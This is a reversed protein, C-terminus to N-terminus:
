SAPRHERRMLAAGPVGLAQGRQELLAVIDDAPRPPSFLFGQAQDCGLDVLATLQDETEVGEGVVTLDLARGLSVVGAVIASDEADSGLGDVFSRDVKVSDIPFRKLYGLSSYGTGFDDMSLRVGLDKLECLTKLVPGTDDLLVSETIELCLNTAPLCSRGLTSEITETIGPHAIQKASLNVAVVLNPDIRDDKRWEGYQRCVESLVWAGLPVVLGTEEALPVFDHPAVLGRQPHQWRILAEIGVYRAESLSVIPQYFVRFENRELARHLASETELRERARVRMREDFLEWRAKGREKALYMAADADRLLDEPLERSGSALAIGVSASLFREEGDPLFPAKLAELLREAVDIVHQKADAGGLDECLVTFEDGGFRALTDGPRLVARLRHGVAVLLEDGYDHGLSDNYNKFEDLDLFLVATANRKRRARALALTLFELFLARNPLGTLPDHHAQFELQEESAKREIAIAALYVLNDVVVRDGPTPECPEPWYLAFTGLVRRDSSALIPTSWCSRLGNEKMLARYSEFLVDDFTDRVIVVERRSAAAGCAGAGEVIPIGADLAAVFPGPLNPGAIPHLALGSADVLMVACVADTVSDEVLECLATLTEVLTDGRAVMELVLAQAAVLSEARTRETVDRTTVVIGQVAPDELLNAAISEVNRWAGDRHRIRFPAPDIRGTELQEAMLRVLEDRDDPHVSGLPNTWTEDNDEFGFLRNAAPSTYVLSGNADVVTIVDSLNQVLARLREESHRVLGEARTRETVDHATVVVGQVAPDDALNNAIAEVTRYSDDSARLRFQEPGTLGPSLLAESFVQAVRDLDDPHVRELGGSGLGFGDPLGLVRSGAPSSYRVTGDLNIVSVMDSGNQVMARFREESERLASEAERAETMDRSNIVFGGVDPDNRLDTATIAMWRWVGDERRMRMEFLRSAGRAVGSLALSAIGLDDPHLLEVLENTSANSIDVGTFRSVSPSAYTVAGAEDLVVLFDSSHHVLAKFRARSSRLGDEAQKRATVDIIVGMASVVQGNADLVPALSLVSDIVRGGVAQLTLEFDKIREGAYVRRILDEVTSAADAPVFPLRRGLVEDASWGFMEECANNWLQVSLDAEVSYIALPSAQVLALLASDSRARADEASRRETVDQSNSVIGHVTPDDLLNTMRSEVWRWTQDKHRIRYNIRVTRGAEARVEAEAERLSPLDDPHAEISRDPAGLIEDVEYGLVRRIAPSVYVINNAADRVSVVDLAENVLSRFWSESALLRAEVEKLHTIDRAVTSFFDVAGDEDCHALTVISVPFEEGHVDCLSVEGTWVGDRSVGPLMETQIVSQSEAGFLSIANFDLDTDIRLGLTSEARENAYLVRGLHDTIFAFDPTSELLAAFRDVRTRAVVEDTVDEASGVFGSVSGDGGLVPAMSSRVHRIDGDPRVIRYEMRVVRAADTVLEAAASVRDRDDPHVRDLDVSGGSGVGAIDRWRQNVYQNRGDHDSYFIGLASSTALSRFREESERLAEVVNSRETEDWSIAVIARISEDGMLNAIRSELWILSGDSRVVRYMVDECAGHGGVRTADFAEGVRERDDPHVLDILRRGIWAEPEADVLEVLSEGITTVIGREDLVIVLDASREVISRLKAGHLLLQREAAKELTIDRAVTSYCEVGGDSSRQVLTVQSVPVEREDVALMSLESRATDHEAAAILLEALRPRSLDSYLDEIAMPASATGSGIGLVHQAAANAYVILGAADSVIVFDTTQECVESLREADRAALVRDTVDEVAGVAGTAAGVEDFVQAARISIWRVVGDTRLIRYEVHTEVPEHRSRERDASCRERDDPHIAKAWGDGLMDARSMGVIDLLQDNVFVLGREFDSRFIGVPITSAVMELDAIQSLATIAAQGSPAGASGSGESSSRDSM